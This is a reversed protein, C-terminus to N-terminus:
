ARGPTLVVILRGSELSVTACTNLLVNSVGRAPGFRLTEGRLPYRLGETRVGHADGALPILSLTDNPAGEIAHQGPGILWLAQAGSVLRVDCGELQPLTLLYINALMQDLRGGIAGLLRIWTAGGDIAALLALELDTENKEAPVRRITSGQAALTELAQPEISDMDGVILHPTLGLALALHTGGDAAILRAEPARALAARVAPGDNLEGNAFVLARAPHPNSM